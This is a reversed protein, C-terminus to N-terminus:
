LVGGHMSQAMDICFLCKGQPKYELHEEIFQCLCQLAACHRPSTRVLPPPAAIMGVVASRPPNVAPDGSLRLRNQCVSKVWRQSYRALLRCKLDQDRSIRTITAGSIIIDRPTVHEAM